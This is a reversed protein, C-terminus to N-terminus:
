SIFKSLPKTKLSSDPASHPQEEADQNGQSFKPVSPDDVINMQSDYNLDNSM